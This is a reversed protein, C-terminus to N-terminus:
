GAPWVAAAHASKRYRARFVVKGLQTVADEGRVLYVTAMLDFDPLESSLTLHLRFRGTIDIPDLPESLHVAAAEHPEVVPGASTFQVDRHAEVAGPGGTTGRDLACM